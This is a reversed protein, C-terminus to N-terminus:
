KGKKEKSRLVRRAMAMCDDLQAKVDKSLPQDDEDGEPINGDYPVVDSNKVVRIAGMEGFLAVLEREVESLSKALGPDKAICKRAPWFSFDSGKAMVIEESIKVNAWVESPDENKSPKKRGKTEKEWVTLAALLNERDLEMQQLRKAADDCFAACLSALRSCTRCHKVAEVWDARTADDTGGLCSGLTVAEASLVSVQEEEEKEEDEAGEGGEEEDDDESPEYDGYKVLVKVAADKCDKAANPHHLLLAARLEGVVDPM